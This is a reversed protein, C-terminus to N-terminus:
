SPISRVDADLKYSCKYPPSTTFFVGFILYRQEGGYFRVTFLDHSNPMGKREGSPLLPSMIAHTRKATKLLESIDRHSSACSSDRSTRSRKGISSASGEDASEERKKKMQGDNRDSFPM